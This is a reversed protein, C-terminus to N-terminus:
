ENYYTININDSNFYVFDGEDYNWIAQFKTPRKIGDIVKYDSCAATWRVKEVAGDMSTAERDESTFSIMEYNDNFTFIGKASNGYFTIVGEVHYDDIENWAIYDQLAVNPILLSESLITVLSAKEISKGKQNFLNFLKAIVGKMSGVGNIYSDLGEFPIGFMSSDILAIREPKSVFNFQTYDMKITPKGKGLSFDVNSYEAKMYTMKEKGIFGCNIFYNKVPLPLHEIDKSTFQDDISSTNSILSQKLNNFQQKTKSYPIKFFIISIGIFLVLVLLIIKLARKKRM